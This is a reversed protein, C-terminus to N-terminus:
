DPDLLPSQGAPMSLIWQLWDGSWNAYTRGYPKSSPSFIGPARDSTSWAAPACLFGLAGTFTVARKWSRSTVADRSDEATGQRMDDDGRSEHRRATAHCLTM